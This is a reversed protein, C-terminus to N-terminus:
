RLLRPEKNFAIVVILQPLMRNAATAAGIDCRVRVDVNDFAFALPGLDTEFAKALTSVTLWPSLNVTKYPKLRV